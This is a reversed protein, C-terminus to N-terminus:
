SKVLTTGFHSLLRPSKICCVLIGGARVCLLSKYFSISSFDSTHLDRPSKKGVNLQQKKMLGANSPTEISRLEGLSKKLKKDGFSWAIPEQSNMLWAAYSLTIFKVPIWGLLERELNLQVLKYVM